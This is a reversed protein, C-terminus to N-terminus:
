ARAKYEQRWTTTEIVFRSFLLRLEGASSCDLRGSRRKEERELLDLGSLRDSRDRSSKHSSGSQEHPPM